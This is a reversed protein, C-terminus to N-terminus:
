LLTANTLGFSEPRNVLSGRNVLSDSLEPRNKHAGTAVKVTVWTGRYSEALGSLATV